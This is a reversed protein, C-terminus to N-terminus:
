KSDCQHVIVFVVFHLCVVNHHSVDQDSCKEGYRSNQAQIQKDGQKRVSKLPTRAHARTHTHTHTHLHLNKKQGCNFCVNIVNHKRSRKSTKCLVAVSLNTRSHKKCFLLKLLLQEQSLFLLGPAQFEMFANNNNSM